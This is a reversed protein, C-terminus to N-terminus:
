GAGIQDNGPLRLRLIPVVLRALSAYDRSRGFSRRQTGTPRIAACSKFISRTHTSNLGKWTRSDRNIGSPSGADACMGAGDVIIPNLRAFTRVSDPALALTRYNGHGGGRQLRKTRSRRKGLRPGGRMIDIIVCPLEAGALYSVGEQM